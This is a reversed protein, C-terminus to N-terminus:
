NTRPPNSLSVHQGKKSSPVPFFLSGYEKGRAEEAGEGGNADCAGQGTRWANASVHFSVALRQRSAENRKKRWVWNVSLAVTRIKYYFM